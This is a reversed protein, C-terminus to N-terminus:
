KKDIIMENMTSAFRKEMWVADSYADESTSMFVYHTERPSKKVLEEISGSCNWLYQCFGSKPNYAHFLIPVHHTLFSGPYVVDGKLTPLSFPKAPQGPNLEVLPADRLQQTALDEPKSHVKLNRLATHVQNLQLHQSSPQDSEESVDSVPVKDFQDMRVSLKNPGYSTAIDLATICYFSLFVVNIWKSFM